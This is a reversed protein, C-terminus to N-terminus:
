HDMMGAKNIMRGTVLGQGNQDLLKLDSVIDDLATGYLYFVLPRSKKDLLYLFASHDIAYDGPRRKSLKKRFKMRYRQAVETITLMDGSLAIIEPDYARTYKALVEPTDREPDLTIFVVQVPIKDRLAKKIQLAENLATPCIDTCHTYGFMLLTYKGRLQESSFRQGNQDTLSFEGNLRVPPLYGDLMVATVPRLWIFFFITLLCLSRHKVKYAKM